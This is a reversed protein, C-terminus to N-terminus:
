KKKGRSLRLVKHHNPPITTQASQRQTDYNRTAPKITLLLHAFFTEEGQSDESRPHPLRVIVYSM